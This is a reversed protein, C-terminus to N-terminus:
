MVDRAQKIMLDAFVGYGMEPDNVLVHTLAGIVKSNQIIPSGSMGQIIGGTKEILEKDTVKVLMSKNNENNNKYIKQIEIDYEKTKNDELTCIIKAPGTEIEDRTAVEMANSININLSNINNLKGYVGFETNKYVEGITTQNEISGQIKGPSGKKGKTISLIKTTVFDGKAIDLLQETDVDLIGHGLAAFTKTSPEYFSVTGVGAAADRVWLGLKYKNDTAMVPTISTEVSEGERVYEVNLQKGNSKSVTELLDTTCTITNDDISIIMDGEEIGTNEYPRYKNNDNGEIESMGVVLVGSTYLKLGVTNGLPVVSTKPIVNVTVDKLPIRGFLNLSFDVKGISTSTNDITSSTQVTKYNNIDINTNDKQQLNLGLVTTLTLKEGQFLIINNPISTINTAYILLLILFSIVFIKKLTKM